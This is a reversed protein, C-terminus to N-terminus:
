CRSRRSNAITKPGFHPTSHSWIIRCNHAPFQSQTDDDDADDGDDTRENGSIHKCLSQLLRAASEFPHTAHRNRQCVRKGSVRSNITRFGFQLCLRLERSVCLNCWDNHTRPPAYSVIMYTPIPPPQSIHANVPGIMFCFVRVDATSLAVAVAWYILLSQSHSMRILARRLEGARGHIMCMHTGSQGRALGIVIIIGLGTPSILPADGHVDARTYAFM